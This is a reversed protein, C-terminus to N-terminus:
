MAMSLCGPNCEQCVATMARPMVQWTTLIVPSPFVLRMSAPNSLQIQSMILDYPKLGQEPGARLSRLGARYRTWSKSIWSRILELAASDSLLRVISRSRNSLHALNQSTLVTLLFQLSHGKCASCAHWPHRCRWRFHPLYGFLGNCKNYLAVM